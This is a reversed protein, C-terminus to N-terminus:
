FDINWADSHKTHNGFDLSLFHIKLDLKSLNEEENGLARGQQWLVQVM